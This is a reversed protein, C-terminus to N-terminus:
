CPLGHMVVKSGARVCMSQHLSNAPNSLSAGSATTCAMVCTLPGSATPITAHCLRLQLQCRQRTAEEFRLSGQLPTCVM